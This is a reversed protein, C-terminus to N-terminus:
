LCAGREVGPGPRRHRARRGRPAAISLGPRGPGRRRWRPPPLGRHPGAPFWPVVSPARRHRRRATVVGGPGGGGLARRTRRSASGSAGTTRFPRRRRLGDLRRLPNRAAGQDTRAGGGGRSRPDHGRRPSDHDSAATPGPGPDSARDGGAPGAGGGRQAARQHRALLHDAHRPDPLAPSRGLGGGRLVGRVHGSGPNAHRRPLSGLVRRRRDSSSVAVWLDEGLLETASRRLLRAAQANLFVVRWQRDVVLLGDPVHELSHTARERATRLDTTDVGVGLIRTARHDQDFSARGHTQVWSTTGDPRLVRYEVAFRDGSEAAAQMAAQVAVLDDPHIRDLLSDAAAGPAGPYIGLLLATQDDSRLEGREIDFEWIGM